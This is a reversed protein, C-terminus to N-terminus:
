RRTIQGRVEGGPYEATHLNVYATGNDLLARLSDGSITINGQTLPRSLDLMGSAVNGIQAVITLPVLVPGVIGAPGLHIHGVTLPTAFGTASVQYTVIAGNREFTASGTASTIAVPIERAGTLQALYTDKGASTADDSSCASVGIMLAVIARPLWRSWAGDLVLV